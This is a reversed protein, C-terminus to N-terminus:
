GGDDGFGGGVVVLLRAGGGKGLGACWVTQLLLLLVACAVRVRLCM